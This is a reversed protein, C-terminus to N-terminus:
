RDYFVERCGFGISKLLNLADLSLNYRTAMPDLSQSNKVSVSTRGIKMELALQKSESNTIGSNNLYTIQQAIARKFVDKRILYDTEFDTSHYFYYTYMDVTNEAITLLKDFNDIKDHGYGLFEAETLYAM